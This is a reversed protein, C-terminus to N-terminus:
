KAEKDLKLFYRDKVKIVKVEKVDKNLTFITVPRSYTNKVEQDNVKETITLDVKDDEYHRLDTIYFFKSDANENKVELVSSFPIDESKIIGYVECTNDDKLKGSFVNPLLSGTYVYLDTATKKYESELKSERNTDEIAKKAKSFTKSFWNDKKEEKKTEVEGNIEEAM